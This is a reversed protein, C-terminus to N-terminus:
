RFMQDYLCVDNEYGFYLNLFNISFGRDNQTFVFAQAFGFDTQAFGFDVM